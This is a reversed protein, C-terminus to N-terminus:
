KENGHFFIVNGGVGMLHVSRGAALWEKWARDKM